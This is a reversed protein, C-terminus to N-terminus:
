FLYLYRKPGESTAGLLRPLEEAAGLGEEMLPMLPDVDKVILDRVEPTLGAM